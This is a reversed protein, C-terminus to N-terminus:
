DQEAEKKLNARYVLDRQAQKINEYIYWYTDTNKDLEKLVDNMVDILNIVTDELAM